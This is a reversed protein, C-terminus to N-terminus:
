AVSKVLKVKSNMAQIIANSLKARGLPKSVYTDMGADLCKTKDGTMANATMAIIPVSGYAKGSKRIKRTAELGGMIPMQVDMLVFDIHQSKLVDIAERGNHAVVVDLQYPELLLLLVELNIENDEVVL